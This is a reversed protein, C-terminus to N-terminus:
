VTVVIIVHICDMGLPEMTASITLRSSLVVTTVSFLLCRCGMLNATFLPSQVHYVVRAIVLQCLDPQNGLDVNRRVHGRIADIDIVPDDTDDAVPRHLCRLLRDGRAACERRVAVLPVVTFGDNVDDICGTVDTAKPCVDMM